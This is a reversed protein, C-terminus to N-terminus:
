FPQVFEPPHYKKGHGTRQFTDKFYLNNDVGWAQLECTDGDVHLHTFGIELIGYEHSSRVVEDNRPGGKTKGGLIGDRSVMYTRGKWLYTAPPSALPNRMDLNAMAANGVVLYHTGGWPLDRGTWYVEFLHDHGYFVADVHHANFLELYALEYIHLSGTDGTSYMPHHMFVFVWKDKRALRALEHELWELQVDSVVGQTAVSQGANTSDLVICAVNGYQFSYYAGTKRDVYPHRFVDLFRAYTEPHDTDHNGTANMFPVRTCWPDLECFLDNWAEDRGGHEVPDGCSVLFSTSPVNKDISAVLRRVSGDHAHMDGVVCFDFPIRAGDPPGTKFSYVPPKALALDEPRSIKYYYTTEPELGALLFSHARSPADLISEEKRQKCDKTKGFSIWRETSFFKSQWTVRMCTAAPGDFSLYPGWRQYRHPSDWTYDLKM